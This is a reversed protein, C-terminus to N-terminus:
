PTRLPYHVVGMTARTTTGRPVLYYELANPARRAFHTANLDFLDPTLPQRGAAGIRYRLARSSLYYNGSEFLLLVGRGNVAPATQWTM